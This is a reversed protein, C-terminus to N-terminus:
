IVGGDNSSFSENLAYVTFHYAKIDKRLMCVWDQNITYGIKTLITLCVPYKDVGLAELEINSVGRGSFKLLKLFTICQNIITTDHIHQHLKILDAEPLPRAYFNNEM